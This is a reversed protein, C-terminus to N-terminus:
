GPRGGEARLVERIADLRVSGERLSPVLMGGEGTEHWAYLLVTNAEVQAQNQKTWQLAARLHEALEIPTPEAYWPGPDAKQPYIDRWQDGQLPRNDWGSSVLPILQKGTAKCAEWFDANSKALARYPHERHDAGFDALAYASVADFGYRDVYDAGTKADWVQAVLYPPGSGAAVAQARLEDLAERAEAQGGFMKEMGEVTYFLALPRGALVKQYTPEQFLAVLAEVTAPWQEKTGLCGDPFLILCFSLDHKRMSSLYLKRGYNYQDAGSDPHYYAFAWFDIGADHAYAIEQDMVEQTDGRVEVKDTAVVKGYFPLRYHWEAPDLCRVYPSGDWCGDWRTVGVRPRGPDDQKADSRAMGSACIAAALMLYVGIEV